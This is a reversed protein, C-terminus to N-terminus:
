TSDPSFTKNSIETGNLTWSINISNCYGFNNQDFILSIGSSTYTNSLTLTLKPPTSFNGSINSIATSWFGFDQNGFIEFNGDLGWKNLELNAIQSTFAGFPVRSLDSFVEGDNSTFTSDKDSGVPIDIYEIQISM